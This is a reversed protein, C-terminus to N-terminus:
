KKFNRYTSRFLLNNEQTYDALQNRLLGISEVHLAGSGSDSLGGGYARHIGQSLVHHALNFYTGDIRVPFASWVEREQLHWSIPLGQYTGQVIEDRSPSPDRTPNVWTDSWFHEADDARFTMSIRSNDNALAFPVGGFLHVEGQIETQDLMLDHKGFVRITEDVAFSGSQDTASLWIDDIWIEEVNTVLSFDFGDLTDLARLDLVDFGEGGDIIHNLGANVIITDNGTGADVIDAVPHTILIKDHGPGGIFTDSDAGGALVDNGWGGDLTNEGDGGELYDRGGMGLLIDAGKLGFLRNTAGDGVLIDGFRTGELNEIGLYLDGRADGDFGQGKVLSATVAQDSDTYAVTDEGGRGKFKQADEEGTFRDDRGWGYETRIVLPSLFTDVFVDEIASDISGVVKPVTGDGFFLKFREGFSMLTDDSSNGWIMWPAVDAWFHDWAESAPALNYTGLNLPTTLLQFQGSDADGQYRFVYERMGTASGVWKSNFANGQDAGRDLRHLLSDRVPMLDYDGIIVDLYDVDSPQLENRAWHTRRYAGFSSGIGDLFDIFEARFDAFSVM